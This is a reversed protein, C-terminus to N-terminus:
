KVQSSCGFLDPENQDIKQNLYDILPQLVQRREDSILNIDLTEITNSISDFLM